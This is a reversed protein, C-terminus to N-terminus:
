FVSCLHYADNGPLFLDIYLGEVKEEGLAVVMLYSRSTALSSRRTGNPFSSIQFAALGM